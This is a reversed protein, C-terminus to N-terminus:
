LELRLFIAGPTPHPSYPETESFGLRQYIRMAASMSPLSDAFIERYGAARAEEIIRRVLAEGIGQGRFEPRVYLRKAECATGALPRFAGTAAAEGQVTALLLRGGPPAYRGPLTRIEEAFGQFDPPLALYDWYERWLGRVLEIEAASAPVIHLGQLNPM